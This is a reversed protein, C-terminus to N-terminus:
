IFSHEDGICKNDYSEGGDRKPSYMLSITHLLSGEPQPIRPLFGDRKLLAVGGAPTCGDVKGFTLDDLRAVAGADGKAEIGTSLAALELFRAGDDLPIFGKSFNLTKKM